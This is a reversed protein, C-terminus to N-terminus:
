HTTLYYFWSWLLCAVLKFFLQENINIDTKIICRMTFHEITMWSCFLAFFLIITTLM